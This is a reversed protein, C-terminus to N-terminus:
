MLHIIQNIKTQCKSDEIVIDLLTTEQARSQIIHQLHNHAVEQIM